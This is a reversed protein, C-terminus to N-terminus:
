AKTALLALRGRLQPVDGAEGFLTVIQDIADAGRAQDDMDLLINARLSLFRRVHPAQALAEDIYGLAIDNSQRLQRMMRATIFPMEPIIGRSACMTQMTRLAAPRQKTRWQYDALQAAYLSHAGGIEAAQSLMTPGQADDPDYELWALAARKLWLPNDPQEALAISSYDLAKDHDGAAYAYLGLASAMADEPIFREFQMMFVELSRKIMDPKGFGRVLSKCLFPHWDLAIQELPMAWQQKEQGPALLNIHGERAIILDYTQSPVPRRVAPDFPIAFQLPDFLDVAWFRALTLLAPRGTPAYWISKTIQDQAQPGNEQHASALAALRSLEAWHTELRGPIAVDLSAKMKAAMVDPGASFDSTMLHQKLLLQFFYVKSFGSQRLDQLLNLATEGQDTANLHNLAFPLSQGIDGDSLFLDRSSQLRSVLLDLAEDLGAADLASRVDQVSSNGMLAATMSFGSGPPGYIVGCRSMAYLEIFDRQALTLSAPIVDAAGLIQPSLAKLRTIEEPEDSFVLIRKDPDRTLQKALVEYFERPIYKNSWLQNSTIPDYIIDGRRIHFATGSGALVADVEKIAQTVEPSFRLAALANAYRPAVDESTEWPFVILNSGSCIVAGQGATQAKFDAVTSKPPLAAVDASQPAVDRYVDIPAEHQAFYAADFIQTPNLLEESTRGDTKWVFYYPLDYDQAIRIANMMTMLRAGLRDNRFAIISGHYKQDLM